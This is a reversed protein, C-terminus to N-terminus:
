TSQTTPTTENDIYTYTYVPVISFCYEKWQNNKTIHSLAEIAIERTGYLHHNYYGFSGIDSRIMEILFGAPELKNMIQSAM